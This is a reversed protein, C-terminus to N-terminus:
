NDTTYGAAATNDLLPSPRHEQAASVEAKASARPLGARSEVAPPSMFQQVTVHQGKTVPNQHTCQEKWRSTEHVLRHGGRTRSAHDM